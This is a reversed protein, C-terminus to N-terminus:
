RPRRGLRRLLWIGIVTVALGLLALAAEIRFNLEYLEAGSPDGSRWLRWQRWWYVSRAGRWGAIVLGTVIAM